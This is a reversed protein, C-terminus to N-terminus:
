DEIADLLAVNSSPDIGPRLGTGRTFVPLAPLPKRQPAAVLLLRLAEEMVQGLTQGRHLSHQKALALLSHDINITTRMRQDYRYPM